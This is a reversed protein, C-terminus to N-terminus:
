LVSDKHLLSDHNPLLLDHNDVATFHPGYSLFLTFMELKKSYKMKVPRSTDVVVRSYGGDNEEKILVETDELQRRFKNSWSLILNKFHDEETIVLEEVHSTSKSVQGWGLAIVASKM